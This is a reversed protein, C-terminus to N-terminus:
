LRKTIEADNDLYNEDNKSVEIKTAPVDKQTKQAFDKFLFLKFLNAFPADITVTAVFAIMTTICLYTISDVIIKTPTFYIQVTSASYMSLILSLHILYVAFSLRAPLKWMGLSLFWNIPGGFGKFCAFIMWGLGLAWAPRIFSNLMNDALQNDWDEEYNLRVCYIIGGFLVLTCAWVVLVVVKNIHVTKGKYLHLIYGFVMGVFFPSARTLTNTYYYTQYKEAGDPNLSFAGSQFNNVFNYATSAGLSILLGATLAIWAIYKKRVLVWILIIPSLLHLQVDVSLYWTVALCMGRPNYLNQIHLLATWWYQRCSLAGMAPFSWNPGDAMRNYLSSEFLVVAALLPFMRLLRSLYFFPINKLLQMSRIKGATTYVVLLGSLMFFTDVTIPAATIWIAKRSIVWQFAELPNISFAVALITHGVVVWIMALTRIGDLCHLTEPGSKFTMLRQTNTYASFSIYVQSIEKVDKKLIFLQWLEYSTSIIVLIGIITFIVRAQLNRIGFLPQIGNQFKKFRKINEFTGGDANVIRDLSDMSQLLLLGNNRIQNQNTTIGVMCYKGQINIDDTNDNIKLCQHYNGIDNMNGLLIGRPIRASADRFQFLLFTNNTTLYELQRQCLEPDLVDEYLKRDFPFNSVNQNVVNSAIGNCVSLIESAYLLILIIFM